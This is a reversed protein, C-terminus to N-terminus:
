KSFKPKFVFFFFLTAKKNFHAIGLFSLCKLIQGLSDKLEIGHSISRASPVMQANQANQVNQINSPLPNIQSLSKWSSNSSSSSPSHPTVTIIPNTDMPTTTIMFQKEENKKKFFNLSGRGFFEFDHHHSSDSGNLMDGTTFAAFTSTCEVDLFILFM